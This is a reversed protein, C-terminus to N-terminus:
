QSRHREGKERPERHQRAGRSEKGAFAGKKAVPTEFLELKKREGSLPIARKKAAAANNTKKKKHRRL